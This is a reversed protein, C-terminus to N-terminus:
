GGIRLLPPSSTTTGPPGTSPATCSYTPATDPSEPNRTCTQERGAADTWTWSAPPQGSTGDVGDRGDKGDAGDKGSQGDVGDAGSAGADGTAGRCQAPESVCAPTVGDEGDKGDRGPLGEAGPEGRQGPQPPQVAPTGGLQEVQRALVQASQANADAQLELSDIRDFGWLIAAVLTAVSVVLGAISVGILRRGPVDRSDVVVQDIVTKEHDATV